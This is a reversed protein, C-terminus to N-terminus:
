KAKELASKILEKDKTPDLKVGIVAQTASVVLNAMEAKIEAIAKNQEAVLQARTKEVIAEQGHQTEILMSDQLAKGQSKAEAIIASAEKRTKGLEEKKWEEFQAREQETTEATQLSKEIKETRATLAKTVPTFVWKWLVFLVIGFNVLQAIFLKANLGLTGAVGTNNVEEAATEAAQAVHIFINPDIM